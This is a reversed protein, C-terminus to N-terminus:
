MQLLPNVVRGMLLLMGSYYDWVLFMFSHDVEFHKQGFGSKSEPTSKASSGGEGVEFTSRDFYM